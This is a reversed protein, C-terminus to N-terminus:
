GNNVQGEIAELVENVRNLTTLDTDGKDNFMGLHKGLQVLANDKCYLKFKFQGNAGVSVESINRTDITRSDKIDVAVGSLSHTDPYFDLYNKIDDFAIHALESLVKDQTIETRKTRKDMLEAIRAQVSVNALLRAGQENATKASYGARTAAQTANLDILYEQCFQEQKIQTLKAM